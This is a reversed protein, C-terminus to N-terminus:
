TETEYYGFLKRIYCNYNMKKVSDLANKGMKNLLEKDNYLKLILDKLINKINNIVFGNYGDKVLENSCGCNDSVIAPLGFNMGENVVLGWTEYESPLILVDSITYYKSIETQNAFGLFLVNKLDNKQTYNVLNNKLDGDGVFIASIDFEKLEKLTELISMPNKRQILKGVFLIVFTDKRLGLNERLIDRSKKLKKYQSHFFDNDVPYGTIIIKNEKGGYFKIFDKAGKGPVIFFDIIRFLIGLIIKKLLLLWLLKKIELKLPTENFTATKIKLFKCIVFGIIATGFNWGYIIVIDYKNNSIEKIIGLNILGILPRYLSPFPSHNKLFKFKYGKLLPIDWKVKQKFNPDYSGRISEDSCYYVILDVDKRKSFERFLPSVYQIPHTLLYAIKIKKGM